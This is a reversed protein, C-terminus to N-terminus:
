AVEGANPCNGDCPSRRGCDACTTDRKHRTVPLTARQAANFRDRLIFRRQLGFWLGTVEDRARRYADEVAERMGEDANGHAWCFCPVNNQVWTRLDICRQCTKFTSVGYDWCGSVHEYKEGPQIEAPCEECRHVKRAMRIASNYFRPPDWDCSCDM